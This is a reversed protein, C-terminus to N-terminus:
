LPNSFAEVQTARHQQVLQLFQQLITKGQPTLVSEPHFQLGWRPLERHALAMIQQKEDVALVELQEPLDKEEVVWSHYRGVELVEPLGTFLPHAKCRIPSNKGHFVQQLQRLSGGAAQAIAQHGLCIGLCPLRSKELLLLLDGAEEPLGPGPSLVLADFEHLKEFPIVDNRFVSVRADLEQLYQRLNYTFSDYNDILLCNM